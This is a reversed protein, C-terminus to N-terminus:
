RCNSIRPMLPCHGIGTGKRNILFLLSLYVSFLHILSVLFLEIFFTRTPLPCELFSVFNSSLTTDLLIRCRTLHLASPFHSLFCREPSKNKPLNEIITESEKSSIPRKPNGTEIKNLRPLEYSELFRDM